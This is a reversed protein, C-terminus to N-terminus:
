LTAKDKPKIIKKEKIIIANAITGNVRITTPKTEYFDSLRIPKRLGLEQEVRKCRAKIDSLLLKDDKKLKLAKFIRQRAKADMVMDVERQVERRKYGLSEVKEVGLLDLADRVLPDTIELVQLSQDYFPFLSPTPNNRLEVYEKFVAEFTKRKNPKKKLQTALLPNEDLIVDYGAKEYLAASINAVSQYDGRIVKNSIEDNWELYKDYIPEGTRKDIVLYCMAERKDQPFEMALARNKHYLEMFDARNQTRAERDIDFTSAGAIDDIGIYRNEKFLHIIRMNNSNRIRGVIQIYATSIDAMTHPKAGDSIIYTQADPDFVDAGLWATRTYFNIKRVPDNISSVPADKLTKYQKLTEVVVKDVAEAINGSLGSLDKGFAKTIAERIKDKNTETNGCVVRIESGYKNLDIKKLLDCIFAVSNVFIHANGFAKNELHDMVIGLTDNGLKLSKRLVIKHKHPIPYHVKIIPLDKIEDFFYKEELPTATICVTDPFYKICNLMGKINERRDPTKYDDLVQHIEDIFLRMSPVDICLADQSDDQVWEKGSKRKGMLRMVLKEVQDYTCVIKIPRNESACKDIYRKLDQLTDNFGGYICLLSDDYGTIEKTVPDRKVWKSHVTNRTPLAIIRNDEGAQLALTTAGCGTVGKLFICRSPIHTLFDSLYIMEDKKSKERILDKDIYIVGDEIKCRQKDAM